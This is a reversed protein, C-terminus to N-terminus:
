SQSCAADAASGPKRLVAMYHASYIHLPSAELLRELPALARVIWSPAFEPLFTFYRVQQVPVNSYLDWRHPLLWREVGEDIANLSPFVYGMYFRFLLNRTNIEHVFLLGNPKLVRFLEGVARRQEDISALHHLVNITYVFDYSADRAPIDLVSGVKVIETSGLRRAALQVQGESDDIGSVDFGLERMREVHSGQGCGVDLGVRGVALPEVLEQMMATKKTLLARRRSEPIQVDYADAIADFHTQEQAGRSRMHVFLFVIGLATAVGTTALRVGLVIVAATGPEFGAAALSELLSRGTVIVGGPALVLGGLGASWAYAREAEPLGLFPGGARAVGWLAVGPILWAVVSAVLATVWTRTRALKTADGPMQDHLLRAIPRVVHLALRLVSRRVAPICAVAAAVILGVNWPTTRGLALGLAGAIIALAVLDLLRDWLNVVITTAIPVGARAKQIAARVAIEGALFPTLLLSLGSFYGIYADRIPIRVSSRRLLFIWRLSRIMLSIITLLSAIALYPWFEAGVRMSDTFNGFVLLTAVLGVLLIAVASATLLVWVMARPSTTMAAASPQSWGADLESLPAM